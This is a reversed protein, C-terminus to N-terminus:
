AGDPEDNASICMALVEIKLGDLDVTATGDVTLQLYGASTFLVGSGSGVGGVLGVADLAISAGFADPDGSHGFNMAAGSGEATVVRVRADVVMTNAPIALVQAVDSESVDITQKSFDVLHRVVVVENNSIARTRQHAHGDISGNTYNYTTAM